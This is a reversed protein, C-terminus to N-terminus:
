EEKCDECKKPNFQIRERHEGIKGLNFDETPRYYGMVRTFVICKTRKHENAELYEKDTM